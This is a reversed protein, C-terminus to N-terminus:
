AFQYNLNGFDDESYVPSADQASNTESDEQLESDDITENDKSEFLQIELAGIEDMTGTGNISFWVQVKGWGAPYIYATYSNLYHSARTEAALAEIPCLLIIVLVIAILRLVASRSGNCM